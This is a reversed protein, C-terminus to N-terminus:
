ADATVASREVKRWKVPSSQCCIGKESGCVTIFANLSFVTWFDGPKVRLSTIACTAISEGWGAEGFIAAALKEEPTLCRSKDGKPTIQRGLIDCPKLMRAGFTLSAPRLALNRLRKKVRRESYSSLTHNEQM